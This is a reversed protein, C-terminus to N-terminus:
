SAVLLESAVLHRDIVGRDVVVGLGPARPVALRGDDLEIPATLDTVDYRDSAGLDGPLDFGSLAGLRSRRGRGIGTEFMGGITCHLASAAARGQLKVDPSSGASRDLAQNSRRRLCRAEDGRRARRALARIRRTRGPHRPAGGSRASGVLDDGAFPQELAGLGLEDLAELALLHAAEDSRYSGNADVVIMLGPFRERVAVVVCEAGPAIKLKVRRYGAAVAREVASVVGAATDIGVTAGAVILQREAGLFSALSRGEACLEADLLAMEIAAKAMPHGPVYELRALGEIAGGLTTGGIFLRPVLAEVLTRFAGAADEGGYTQTALRPANAM